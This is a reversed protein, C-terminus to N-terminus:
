TPLSTLSDNGCEPADTDLCRSGAGTACVQLRSYRLNKVQWRGSALLTRGIVFRRYPLNFIQAVSLLCELSRTPPAKWSRLPRGSAVSRPPVKLCSLRTGRTSPPLLAQSNPVCRLSFAYKLVRECASLNLLTVQFIRGFRCTSRRHALGSARGVGFSEM